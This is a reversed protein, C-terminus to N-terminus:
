VSVGDLLLRCEALMEEEWAWLRRRWSWAEGGEGWGRGSMDAVTSFKNTTLDFLRGFRRCFPVDGLWTDFWFFTNKGDGVVRSVRSGFWGGDVGEVGDRIKVLERWWSSASRGGVELRGAVEGYRAVLV